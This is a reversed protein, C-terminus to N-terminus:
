LYNFVVQIAEEPSEDLLQYADAAQELAYRHTIWKSPKIRKLADWVVEFRRPKDWRGSLVPSISSVQSAILQIRSRHFKGGLDIPARKQGYWSGIIIRGTFATLEIAQNLAAPNGTLEMTLDFGSQSWLCHQLAATRFDDRTPDLAASVGADLAAQRRLPYADATIVCELPFENLLAATLLGVVGQGLVLVREGLLPAGDQVLNVATEMNPLFVGCEPSIFDPMPLLTKPSAVFHSTHPQFAFVLRNEWGREVSRGIEKVRGVCAYGYALPYQLNSSLNDGAEVTELQIQGRYVLLETGASIASICTEVLVQDEGPAPLPEERVEVRGPACFYVIKQNM